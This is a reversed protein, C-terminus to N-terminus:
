GLVQVQSDNLPNTFVKMADIASVMGDGGRTRFGDEFLASSSTSGLNFRGYQMMAADHTQGLQERNLYTTLTDDGFSQWDWGGAFLRDNELYTNLGHGKSGWEFIGQQGELSSKQVISEETVSDVAEEEATLDAVDSMEAMLAAGNSMEAVPTEEADPQPDIQPAVSKSPSFTPTPNITNVPTLSGPIANAEGQLAVNDLAVDDGSDGTHDAKVQFALYDYGKDLDVSYSFDKWDFSEGEDGGISASVLKTGEVPLVGVQQPSTDRRGPYRNFQGNIGWLEVIIENSNGAKDPAGEINKLSFSLTQNGRHLKENRVTQGIYNSRVGPKSLDAIGNGIQTDNTKFWGLDSFQSSSQSAAIADTSDFNGNGLANSYATPQVSLTQTTTTAKGQSDIVTLSVSRDGAKDFVPKITRGFRDMKGDNDLDWGYAAIGKSALRNSMGDESLLPDADFSASADLEMALGGMAKSGFRAVPAVNGAIEEFQNNELKMLPIYDDPRRGPSTPQDGVKSLNYKNNKFRSNKLTPVVFDKNNNLYELQIGQEFGEITLNDYVSNFTAHNSFLGVASGGRQGDRGLILGDELDINSSYFVEVGTQNNWLKFDEVKSRGLHATRYDNEERDSPSFEREGNFNAKHGWVLLGELGNYAEFGTIDAMPVDRIDIRTQGEPVLSQLNEPLKDVDIYKIPRYVDTTDLVGGFLTMGTRNSSVAKNDSNVVQAAGQIWYGHGEFGLDFKAKREDQQGIVTELPVGTTKMVLNDTWWGQENGSEAVIGAGVVDFVVNDELGANSEHQVIGWGPSGSVVSGKIIAAERDVGTKHLHLAYRGRINTGNGKSGDVNEGIDDVMKTKDSRGLDYFGVNVVSINPNHMLMVHARQSVPVGKGNETEFSVNRTLNAAYLNLEGAAAFSNVNHNYRLVTNDGATIDNNTFRITNGDIETITLVEDQSRSNNENKGSFNRRTGGIAIQDGVAWGSLDGSFSLVSSGASVNGALAAKDAKAAGYISVEGHSVLGKSLQNPDWATNVARDSTFIVRASNGAAVAQNQSGVELKGDESNLITEVYLQTDQNTSFKLGGEIAVTEIHAESVQDYTVTTGEAILVKAGEGPIRGGKWTSADSWAGSKVAEHTLNLSEILKDLDAHEEAHAKSSMDMNSNMNMKLSTDLDSNTSMAFNIDAVDM